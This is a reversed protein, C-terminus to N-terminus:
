ALPPARPRFCHGTPTSVRGDSFAPLDDGLPVVLYLEAGHGSAASQGVASCIACQDEDYIPIDPGDPHGIGKGSETAQRRERLDIGQLLYGSGVEVAHGLGPVLHLGENVGAVIALIAILLWAISRHQHHSM